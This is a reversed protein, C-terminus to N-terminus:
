LKKKKLYDPKGRSVAQQATSHKMRLRFNNLMFDTDVGEVENNLFLWEAMEEANVRLTKGDKELKGEEIASRIWQPKQPKTVKTNIENLTKLMIETKESIPSKFADLASVLIDKSVFEHNKHKFYIMDLECKAYEILEYFKSRTTKISWTEESWELTDICDSM